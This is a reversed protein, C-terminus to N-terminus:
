PRPLVFQAFIRDTWRTYMAGSPHLKDTAVLEPKDLGERSIDTIPVYTVGHARTIRENIANFENLARTIAEQKPQGFPTYGYDPISVVFVRDKRGGALRIADNLLGEFEIAYQDAPKGQYQNNVGILLSVIDWDNALNAATMAAKLNDTRWGTTAIIRPDAVARGADRWRKVLQVPWREAEAVAEGITYSDGLALYRLPTQAQMGSVTLISVFFLLAISPKM